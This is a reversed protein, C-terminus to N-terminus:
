IGGRLAPRARPPGSLPAREKTRCESTGGGAKRGMTLRAASPRPSSGIEAQTPARALAAAADAAARPVVLGSGGLLRAPRRAAFRSSPAVASVFLTVAIYAAFYVVYAAALCAPPGHIWARRRGKLSRPSSRPGSCVAPGVLARPGGRDRAGQGRAHRAGSRGPERDAPADREREGTWAAFGLLRAAARPAPAGLGREAPRLARPGDRGPGLARSPEAQPGRAEVSVASSRSTGPDVFPAIGPASSTRATTAAVHPNRPTRIASTITPTAQAARARRPRRPGARRRARVALLGAVAVLAIRVPRRALARPDRPAVALILGLRRPSAKPTDPSPLNPSV